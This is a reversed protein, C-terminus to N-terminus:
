KLQEKEKHVKRLIEPVEERVKYVTSTGLFDFSITRVERYPGRNFASGFASVDLEFLIGSEYDTLIM